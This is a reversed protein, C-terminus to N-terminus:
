DTPDIGQRCPEGSGHEFRGFGCKARSFANSEAAAMRRSVTALAMAAM